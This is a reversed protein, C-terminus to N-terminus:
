LGVVFKKKFDVLVQKKESPINNELPDMYGSLVERLSAELMQATDKEGFVEVTKKWFTTMNKGAEEPLEFIENFIEADESSLKSLVTVACNQLTLDLIVSMAEPIKEDPFGIQFFFDQLSEIINQIM